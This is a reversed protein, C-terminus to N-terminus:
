SHVLAHKGFYDSVERTSSGDEDETKTHPRRTERCRDCMEAGDQFVCSGDNKETKKKKKLTLQILYCLLFIRFAVSSSWCNQVSRACFFNGKWQKMQFVNTVGFIRLADCWFIGNVYMTGFTTPVIPIDEPQFTISYPIHLQPSLQRLVTNRFHLAHFHIPFLCSCSRFWSHCLKAFLSVAQNLSQSAWDQSFVFNSNEKPLSPQVLQGFSNSTWVPCHSNKFTHLEYGLIKACDDYYKQSTKVFSFGNVDCVYSRGNARLMDFGCVTQQQFLLSCM